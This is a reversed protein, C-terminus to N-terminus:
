VGTGRSPLVTRHRRRYRRTAKFGEAWRRKGGPRAGGGSAGSCSRQRGFRQVPESPPVAAAAMWVSADSVCEAHVGDADIDVGPDKQLPNFRCTGETRGGSSRTRATRSMEKRRQRAASLAGPSTAALAFRPSESSVLAPHLRCTPPRSRSQVTAVRRPFRGARLRTPREAGVRGLM